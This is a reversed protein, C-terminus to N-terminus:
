GLISKLYWEKLPSVSENKALVILNGRECIKALDWSVYNGEDDLLSIIKILDFWGKKNKAFLTFDDFSCGLIPKIDNAVCAQYFSVAGSITKYDAIGCARFGQDACKKALDKPKSYGKLLSYHTYNCLPFWNM